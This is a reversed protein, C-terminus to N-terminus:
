KFLVKAVAESIKTTLDQRTTIFMLTGTAILYWRLNSALESHAVAPLLPLLLGASILIAAPVLRVTAVAFRNNRPAVEEPANALLATRDGACFAQVGQMLSVVVTDVDHASHAKALARKHNRIVAAVRQAEERLETCASGEESGIRRSLSGDREVQVAVIELWARWNTVRSDDYWRHRERSISAATGLLFLVIHDYPHCLRTDFYNTLWNRAALISTAIVLVGSIILASTSAADVTAAPTDPDPEWKTVALFLFVLLASGFLPYFLLSEFLRRLSPVLFYTTLGVVTSPTLILAGTAAIGYVCGTFLSEATANSPVHFRALVVAAVIIVAPM